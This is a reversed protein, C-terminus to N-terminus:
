RIMVKELPMPDVCHSRRNDDVLAHTCFKATQMWHDIVLFGAEAQGVSYRGIWCYAALAFALLAVTITKV